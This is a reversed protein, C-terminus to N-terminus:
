SHSPRGFLTLGCKRPGRLDAFRSTQVVDDVAPWGRGLLEIRISKSDGLERWDRWGLTTWRTLLLLEGDRHFNQLGM